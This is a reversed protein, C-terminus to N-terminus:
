DLHNAEIGSFGGEQIWHVRKPLTSKVQELLEAQSTNGANVMLESKIAFDVLGGWLMRAEADGTSHYM